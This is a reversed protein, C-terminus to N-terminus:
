APAAAARPVIRAERIPLHLLAAGIALAIDIWWMWDYSGTSEFAKGGLWAGLFGGVQHSLMVLGFLTAMYRAGHLKAVLGATPPVTSLYTFGIVAAFVLVVAETKPALVFALVAVARTAYILSLLSKMRWHGVAWGIAVSGAINFLGVIALAWAGISPPLGCAAVVGPLHTAIFAVHFGCVFFGASLLLFSRDRFAGRVAEGMTAGSAAASDAEGAPVRLALIMPLALLTLLSLGWLAQVWGFGGIMWQALPIIAFQGFSGGAGVIGTAMGRRAPDIRRAVAGMLVSPGLAGAGGAGLVGITLMLMPLTGAYPILATGLAIAVGGALMVRGPGFRDACAGAIPQTVGWMLQGVAFALSIAAIGLGTQTNLTGLFLPLSQRVGMSAAFLGAACLVIALWPLPASRATM